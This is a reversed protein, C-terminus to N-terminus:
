TWAKISTRTSQSARRRLCIKPRKFWILAGLRSMTAQCLSTSPKRMSISKTKWSQSRVRRLKINHRCDKSKLSISCTQPPSWLQSSCNTAKHELLLDVLQKHRRCTQNSTTIAALKSCCSRSRLTQWLRLSKTAALKAVQRRIAEREM